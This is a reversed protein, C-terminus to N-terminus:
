GTVILRAAFESWNRGLFRSSDRGGNGPMGPIVDALRPSATANSGPQGDSYQWMVIDESTWGLDLYPGLHPAAVAYHAIWLADCGLRDNINLDLLVQGSYLVMNCCHGLRKELTSKVTNVFQTTCEIVRQRDKKQFAQYNHAPAAGRTGDSGFELDVIPCLDGTGWGAEALVDCYYAAQQLPDDYIELWHYAGLVFGSGRAAAAKRASRWEPVFWDRAPAYAVGDTAKLIVGSFDPAAVVTNWDPHGERAYIDALLIPAETFPTTPDPVPFAADPDTVTPPENNLLRTDSSVPLESMASDVDDTKCESEGIM